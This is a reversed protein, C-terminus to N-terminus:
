AGEPLSFEGPLTSRVGFTKSVDLTTLMNSGAPMIRATTILSAGRLSWSGISIKVGVGNTVVPIAIVTIGTIGIIGIDIIGIHGIGIGHWSRVRLFRWLAPLL